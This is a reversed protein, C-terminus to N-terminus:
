VAGVKAKSIIPIHNLRKMKVKVQRLRWTVNHYLIRYITFFPLFLSHQAIEILLQRHVKGFALPVLVHGSSGVM